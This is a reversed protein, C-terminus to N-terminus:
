HAVAGVEFVADDSVAVIDPRAFRYPAAGKYTTVNFSSPSQDGVWDTDGLKSLM